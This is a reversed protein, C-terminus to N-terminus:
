ASVDRRNELRDRDGIVVLCMSVAYCCKADALFAELALGDVFAVANTAAERISDLLADTRDVTV